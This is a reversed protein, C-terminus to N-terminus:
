RPRAGGYQQDIEALVLWGVYVLALLVAFLVVIGTQSFWIRVARRFSTRVAGRYVGASILMNIPVLIVGAVIQLTEQGNAGGMGTVVPRLLWVALVGAAGTMLFVAVVSKLAEPFSPAEVGCVSCALRFMVAAFILATVLGVVVVVISLILAGHM